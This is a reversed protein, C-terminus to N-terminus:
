NCSGKSSERVRRCLVTHLQVLARWGGLRWGRTLEGVLDGGSGQADPAAIGGRAIEGPLGDGLSIDIEDRRSSNQNV